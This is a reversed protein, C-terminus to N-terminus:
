NGETTDDMMRLNHLHDWEAAGMPVSSTGAAEDAAWAELEAREESWDPGGPWENANSMNTAGEDTTTQSMPADLCTRRCKDLALTFLNTAATWEPM